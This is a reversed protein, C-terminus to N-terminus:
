NNILEFCCTPLVLFADSSIWLMLLLTLLIVDTYANGSSKRSTSFPRLIKPLQLLVLLFLTM